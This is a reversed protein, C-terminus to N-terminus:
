GRLGNDACSWFYEEHQSTSFLGGLCVMRLAVSSFYTISHSLFQKPNYPSSSLFGSDVLLPDRLYCRESSLSGMMAYRFYCSPTVLFFFCENNLLSIDDGLPTAGRFSLVYM